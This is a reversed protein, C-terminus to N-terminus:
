NKKAKSSKKEKLLKKWLINNEGERLNDLLLWWDDFFVIRVSWPVPGLVSRPIGQVVAISVSHVFSVGATAGGNMRISRQWNIGIVVRDNMWPRAASVWSNVVSSSPSHLSLTFFYAKWRFDRFFAKSTKEADVLWKKECAVNHAFYNLKLVKKPISLDSLFM